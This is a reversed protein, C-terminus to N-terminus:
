ESRQKKNSFLAELRDFRSDLDHSVEAKHTQLATHVAQGVQDSVSKIEQHLGQLDSQHTSLTYQIGQISAETAQVQQGLSSFWGSFKLQQAQMEGLSTEIKEFRQLNQQQHQDLGDTDMSASKLEEFKQQMAASLEDKLSGTVEQLHSKGANAAKPGTYTKWPDKGPLTWPDTAAAAYSPASTSSSAEARMHQQTKSSAVLRPQPPPKSERSIETILIEKGFGTIVDAPPATAAGVQWSMAEASGKGPQLPKVAWDLDKLLKIVGARQLGHPLPFLQFIRQVKANVWTVDPKIQRFTQEEHEALVRLGYKKKMRVLGLAHVKTRCTHMAEDHSRAPLWIVRYRDDHSKTQSSRPEFYIGAVVFQLLADLVSAPIRLFVGFIQADQAPAKGGRM